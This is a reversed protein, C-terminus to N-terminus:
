EEQCKLLEDIRSIEETLIKIQSLEELIDNMMTNLSGQCECRHKELMAKYSEHYISEFKEGVGVTTKQMALTLVNAILFKNELEKTV